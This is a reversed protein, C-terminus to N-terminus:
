EGSRDPPSRSPLRSSLALPAAVFWRAGRYIMFLAGAQLVHYLANHDFYTPHVAIRFHQVGAALLTVALGLTGIVIPRARWRYTALVFVALLFLAAPLYNAIAVAFSPRGLAVFAAYGTLEALALGEIRRAVDASFQIRAGISWAAWAGAGIALLTVTWLGRGAGTAPDLAWGHLTGGAVAAAAVAGFFGAFRAGLPQGQPGARRIRAALIACEVALGYDTLTVDPEGIM